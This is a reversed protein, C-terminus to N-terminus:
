SAGVRSFNLRSRVVTAVDPRLELCHFASSGVLRGNLYTALHESCGDIRINQGTSPRRLNTSSRNVELPRASPAFGRTPSPKARLSASAPRERRVRRSSSAQADRRRRKARYGGVNSSPLLISAPPRM